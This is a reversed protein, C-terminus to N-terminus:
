LEEKKETTPTCNQQLLAPSYKLLILSNKLLRLEHQIRPDNASDSLPLIRGCGSLEALRWLDRKRHDFTM